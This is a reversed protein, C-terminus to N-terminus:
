YVSLTAKTLQSLVVAALMWGQCYVTCCRPFYSFLSEARTRETDSRSIFVRRYNEPEPQLKPALVSCVAARDQDIRCSLVKYLVGTHYQLVCKGRFYHKFPM